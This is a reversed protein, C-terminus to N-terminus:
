RDRAWLRMAGRAVDHACARHLTSVPGRAYREWHIARRLQDERAQACPDPAGAAALVSVAATMRALVTGDDTGDPLRSYHVPAAAGDIAACVETLGSASRLVRAVGDRGAGSRLASVACATGFLDLEAAMRRRLAEPLDADGGTLLRLGELMADDLVGPETGAVALLASLPRVPVAHARELQRCRGAAAAMPGGGRFGTLDAKNLVAVTPRAASALAALDDANLTEVFVHVGVDPGGDVSVVTAGANRLARVM